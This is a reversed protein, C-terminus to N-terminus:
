AGPFPFEEICRVIYEQELQTLDNFLPLRVLRASLDDTVPLAPSDPALKKGMPSTHLPLYHFVANIGRADLHTILAERAEHTPMILYFIHHTPECDEPVYPLHVGHAGAWPTLRRQYVHWTESRRAQFDDFAELQAYLYAALLDSIVYSSGVDVWQYKGVEGRFFSSRNTGKERLIEAREIYREDNILLMGGEGCSLNKTEHFSHTSLGGWTGLHRGKYKGFLGHANDEVVEAEAERALRTLTEMECGIGAYHVPLIARTRSTIAAEVQTEDLNLTDPRIDVFVPKAGRLIFANATSVFTFSPLIFEDGPGIDILHAAMELAHTCSTVLLARPAGLRSEFFKQCAKTYYGDGSIHMRKIADNLNAFEPGAVYPRNFPIRIM